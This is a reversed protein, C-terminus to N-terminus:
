RIGCILITIVGGIAAEGFLSGVNGRVVEIRDIMSLPIDAINYSGIRDTQARVGDIFVASNVSAMGRLFLSTTSGPGGNRSIEFGSEGSLFSALDLAQSREIKERSIVSVSPIVDSLPQEFRAASVVVPNLSNLPTEVVAPPADPAKISSQAFAASVGLALASIAPLYRFSM